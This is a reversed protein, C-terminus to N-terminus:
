LCRQQLIKEGQDPFVLQRLNFEPLARRRVSPPVCLRRGRRMTGGTGITEGGGDVSLNNLARSRM